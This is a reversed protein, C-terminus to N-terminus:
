SMCRQWLTAHENPSDVVPSFQCHHHHSSQASIRRNNLDSAIAILAIERLNPTGRFTTRRASALSV